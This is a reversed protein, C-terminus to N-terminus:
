RALPVLAARRFGLRLTTGPAGDFSAPAQVQAGAGDALSLHLLRHTGLYDSRELRADVVQEAEMGPELVTFAEPRISLAPAPDDARPADTLAPAPLSLDLAPCHWRDGDVRVEFLNVAGIFAAVYRDAPQRYVEAPTGTQVIRGDRMVALRDALSLAEDQDHTVLVCTVGARRLIAALEARTQERLQRDLAALPEDLLLLRPNRALARALAVRQRQGGSLQHPRRDALAELRVLALMEAVRARRAPAPMPLRRLGFAVNAAVDLHPFLAYSQFMMNVPRRHPPLDTIDEDALHVRGGDPSELGALMRLLTSKGCGSPGLLAFIEGGAVELDVADVATVSGFRRTVGELVLRAAAPAPGAEAAM